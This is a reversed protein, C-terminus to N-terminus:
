EKDFPNSERLVIERDLEQTCPVSSITIYQVVFKLSLDLMAEIDVARVIIASGPFIASMRKSHHFPPIFSIPTMTLINVSLEGTEICM